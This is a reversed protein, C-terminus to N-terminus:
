LDLTLRPSRARSVCVFMTDQAAQEAVTLLSDRHDVQGALVATECTGCIGERCSSLVPIGASELVDLISLGVPVTLTVNSRALVVEFSGAAAPAAVDKPDFHEVHLANAACGHSRGTVADLLPTPGCCYIATDPRPKDLPSLDILGVEDQPYLHVRCGDIAELEARFAMSARRRGGYHLQWDAGAAHTARIMPLIPTIGIGGAVFIYRQAPVLAFHNRPGRAMLEDGVQLQEHVYVSGGRGGPERLVAVTWGARDAPSGCLSYQRVLGVTLVLDIHAGPSWAPLASGSVPVLTLAVVGDAVDKRQHVRVPIEAERLSERGAGDMMVNAAVSM